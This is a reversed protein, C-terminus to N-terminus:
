VEGMSGSYNRKKGTGLFVIVAGAIGAAFAIWLTQPVSLNDYLQGGIISALVVGLSTATFAFSQGKASNEFSINDSVYYVVATMYLAYSPAQLIFSATLQWVNGSLIIALTKLVFCVASIRLAEAHKGTKFFRIYIFMIPIEMLGKFANIFGMDATGGGVHRTINILYTCVLSHGFFLLVVGALLIFFQPDNRIFSVLTTYRKGSSGSKKEEKVFRAFLTFILFQFVCIMLGLAPLARFSVSEILLGLVVSVIVYALSGIGRTLGYNITYGEHEADAYLKLNLANVTASSGMYAVYAASVALSRQDFLLLFLVSATQIILIWPILKKATIRKDRDIWSSLLISVIIGMVSGLATILGLRSNSYGLAQLYVAAFSVCLCFSMWYGAQVLSFLCEPAKGSSKNSGTHLHRNNIEM